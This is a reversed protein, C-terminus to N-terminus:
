LIFKVILFFNKLFTKSIHYQGKLYNHHYLSICNKIIKINHLCKIHKIVIKCVFLKNNM